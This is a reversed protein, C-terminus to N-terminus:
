TKETTKLGAQLCFVSPSNFGVERISRKFLKTKWSYNDSFLPFPLFALLGGVSHVVRDLQVPDGVPLHRLEWAPVLAVPARESVEPSVQIPLYEPSRASVLAVPARESMEPSVEAPILLYGPVLAVPARESMEPSVEAPIPIYGLVLAVQAWESMESSVEVPVLLYTPVGM